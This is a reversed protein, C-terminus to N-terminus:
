RFSNNGWGNERFFAHKGLVGGAGVRRPNVRELWHNQHSSKEPHSGNLWQREFVMGKIKTPNKDNPHEESSGGRGVKSRCFIVKLGHGAEGFQTEDM